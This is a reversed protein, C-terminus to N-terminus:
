GRSGRFPRGPIAEKVRINKIRLTGTKSLFILLQTKEANAPVRINIRHEQWRVSRSLDKVSMDLRKGNGDVSMVGVYCNDFQNGERRIGSSQADFSLTYTDGPQLDLEQALSHWALTSAEGRLALGTEGIPAIESRPDEGGNKAGIDVTWGEPRGDAWRSFDGNNVLPDDEVVATPTGGDDSAATRGFPTVTLNRVGLIGTKSLFIMVRSSAAGRPVQFDIRHKTWAGRDQSLDKTERAMVQEGRGFFFVGVYCNDYQRGERKVDRARAEFELVYRTGAKAEFEQSVSRWAMTRADGRLMLAPGKIPRLDSIPQEAGNKAGITVNWGDPVGDAWRRFDGNRILPEAGHCSSNPLFLQTCLMM